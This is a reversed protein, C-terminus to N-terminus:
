ANFNTGRCAMWFEKVVLNTGRQGRLSHKANAWAYKCGNLAVLRMIKQLWINKDRESVKQSTFSYSFLADELWKRSKPHSVVLKRLPEALTDLDSRAAEGSIGRILTHCLEPGYRLM